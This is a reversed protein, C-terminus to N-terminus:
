DAQRSAARLEDLMKEPEGHAPCDRAPEDKPAGPRDCRCRRLVARWLAAEGRMARLEEETM